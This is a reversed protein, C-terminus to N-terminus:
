WNLCRALWTKNIILLFGCCLFSCCLVCCSVCCCLSRCPIRCCSVRWCLVCCYSICCSMSYCLVCWCSDIVDFVVNIQIMTARQTSNSEDVQLSTFISGGDAASIAESVSSVADCIKKQTGAAALTSSSCTVTRNTTGSQSWCSVMSGWSQLQQQFVLVSDLYFQVAPFILSTMWNLKHLLESLSSAKM